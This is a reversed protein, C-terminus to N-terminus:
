YVESALSVIKSYKGRLEKSVPGFIRTGIPDQNKLLVAANESFVITTGDSRLIPSKVRVIVAQVVSGPSVKAGPIATKVSAIIVDGINAVRRKAGGLVKICMLTKAGSNDAVQLRTQMQIM